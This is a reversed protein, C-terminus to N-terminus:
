YGSDDWASKPADNFDAVTVNTSTGIKKDDFEKVYATSSAEGGANAYSDVLVGSKSVGGIVSSFKATAASDSKLITSKSWDGDNGTSNYGTVSNRGSVSRSELVSNAKTNFQEGVSDARTKVNGKVARSYYVQLALLAVLVAAIFIAYETASQSKRTLRM